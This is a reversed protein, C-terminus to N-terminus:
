SIEAGTRVASIPSSIRSGAPDLEELLCPFSPERHPDCSLSGAGLSAQPINGGRGIDTTSGHLGDSWTGRQILIKDGNHQPQM